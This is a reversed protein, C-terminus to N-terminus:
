EGKLDNKLKLIHKLAEDSMRLHSISNLRNIAMDILQEPTKKVKLCKSSTSINAVKSQMEIAGFVEAIQKKKEPCDRPNQCAGVKSNNEVDDPAYCWGCDNYTCPFNSM